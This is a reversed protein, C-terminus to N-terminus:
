KKLTENGNKYIFGVSVINANVFLIDGAQVGINKIDKLITDKSLKM